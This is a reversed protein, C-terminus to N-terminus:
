EAGPKRWVISEKIGHIGKGAPLTLTFKPNETSSHASRLKEVSDDAFNVAVLTCLGGIREVRVEYRTKPKCKFSSPWMGNMEHYVYCSADGTHFEVSPSPGLEPGGAASLFNQKLSLSFSVEGPAPAMVPQPIGMGDAEPPLVPANERLSPLRLIGKLSQSARRQM